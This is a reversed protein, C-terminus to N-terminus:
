NKVYGKTVCEGGYAWTLAGGAVAPTLTCTDAAVIGKIAKPTMTVVATTEAVTASDFVNTGRARTPGPM